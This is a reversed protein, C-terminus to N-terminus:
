DLRRPIAGAAKRCPDNGGRRIKDNPMAVRMSNQLGGLNGGISPGDDRGVSGDDTLRVVVKGLAINGPDEPDEVCRDSPMHRTVARQRAIVSAMVFDKFEEFMGQFKGAADEGDLNMVDKSFVIHDDRKYRDLCLAATARRFKRLHM